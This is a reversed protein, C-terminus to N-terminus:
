SSPPHLLYPPFPITKTFACLQILLSLYRSLQLAAEWWPSMGAAEEGGWTRGLNAKSIDYEWLITHAKELSGTLLMGRQVTRATPHWRPAQRYRLVHLLPIRCLQGTSPSCSLSAASGSGLQTRLVTCPRSLSRPLPSYRFSVTSSSPEAELRALSTVRLQDKQAENTKSINLKFYGM